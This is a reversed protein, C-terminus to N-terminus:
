LSPKYIFKEVAVRYKEGADDLYNQLSEGSGTEIKEFKNKIYRTKLCM